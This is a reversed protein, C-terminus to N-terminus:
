AVSLNDSLSPPYRKFTIEPVVHGHDDVISDNNGLPLYHLRNMALLVTIATHGKCNLAFKRQGQIM